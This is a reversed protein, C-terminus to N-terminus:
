EEKEQKGTGACHKCDILEEYPELGRGFDSYWGIDVKGQGECEPCDIMRYDPIM